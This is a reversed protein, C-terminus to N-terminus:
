WLRCYGMHRSAQWLDYKGDEIASIVFQSSALWIKYVSLGTKNKCSSYKIREKTDKKFKGFKFYLVILFDACILPTHSLSNNHHLCVKAVVVRPLKYFLITM